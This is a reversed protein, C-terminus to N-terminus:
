VSAELAQQSQEGKQSKRSRSRMLFETVLPVIVDPKEVFVNHGCEPLLVFESGPILDAMQRAYCAPILADQDGALVLTPAAIRYEKDHAGDSRALCRLQKAIASRSFGAEVTQELRQDIESVHQDFYQPSTGLLEVTRRFLEPPFHRLAQALLKAIERLYPGFRHTCSVLVLRDVRSPHDVALQQAVIGGLSLGMVHVRKLQLHDLLEVLDVAFDAMTQPTRKPSSRGMGRNDPLILSFSNSLEAAVCEWLACTAGLGPVLLLPDGTGLLEYYCRADTLDAYV